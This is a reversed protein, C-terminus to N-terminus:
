LSLTGGTMVILDVSQFSDRITNVIQHQSDSVSIIQNVHIGNQELFNGIWGSNTDITQGILIEDGITIINARM